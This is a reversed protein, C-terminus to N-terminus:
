RVLIKCLLIIKKYDDINNDSNQKQYLNEM